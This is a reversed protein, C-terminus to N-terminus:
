GDCQISIPMGYPFVTRMMLLWNPDVFIGHMGESARMEAAGAHILASVAFSSLHNNRVNENRCPVGRDRLFAVLDKTHTLAPIKHKVLFAICRLTNLDREDAHVTTLAREITVKSNLSALHLKMAHLHREHRAHKILKEERSPLQKETGLGDPAGHGKHAHCVWCWMKMGEGEGEVKLWSKFRDDSLYHCGNRVVQLSVIARQVSFYAWM